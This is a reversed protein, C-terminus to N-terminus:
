ACDIGYSTRTAHMRPNNFVYEFQLIVAMIHRLCNVSEFTFYHGNLSDFM